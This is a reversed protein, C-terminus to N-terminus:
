VVREAADKVLFDDDSLYYFFEGKQVMLNKLSFSFEREAMLDLVYFIRSVITGRQRQM